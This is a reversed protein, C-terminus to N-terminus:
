LLFKYFRLSSPLHFISSPPPFFLLYKYPLNVWRITLPLATCLPQSTPMQIILSNFQINRRSHPRSHKDSPSIRWLQYTSHIEVHIEFVVSSLYYEGRSDHDSTSLPLMWSRTLRTSFRFERLSRSSFSPVFLKFIKRVTASISVM